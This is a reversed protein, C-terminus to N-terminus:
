GANDKPFPKQKIDKRVVFFYLISGASIGMLTFTGIGLETPLIWAQESAATHWNMTKDFQTRVNILVDATRQFTTILFIFSTLYITIVVRALTPSIIHGAFYTAVLLASTILVFAMFINVIM